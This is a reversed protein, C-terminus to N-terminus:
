GNQLALLPPSLPFHHCVDMALQKSNESLGPHPGGAERALQTPATESFYSSRGSAEPEHLSWPHLYCPCILPLLKSAM